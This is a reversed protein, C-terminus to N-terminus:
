GQPASPTGPRSVSLRHRGVKVRNGCVAMECWVRSGNRSRDVFLWRCLPNGCTRIRGREASLALLAPLLDDAIGDWGGAPSRLTGDATLRYDVDALAADVSRRWGALDDAPSRALGRALARIARLRKLQAATPVVAPAPISHTSLFDLADKPDLLHDHPPEDARARRRYHAGPGHRSNALGLAAEVGLRWTVGMSMM